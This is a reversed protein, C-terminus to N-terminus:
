QFLRRWWRVRNQPRPIEDALDLPPVKSLIWGPLPPNQSSGCVVGLNNPDYIKIFSPAQPNDVYVIGCYDEEHEARLLQDIHTIFQQLQETTAPSQPPPEGVQYVYWVSENEHRLVQWLEDLQQWHRIGILLGKLQNRFENNM